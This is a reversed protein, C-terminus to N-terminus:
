RSHEFPVQVLKDDKLVYPWAVDSRSYNVRTVFTTNRMGLPELFHTTILDEWKEGGLVESIYTALGYMLNNYYYKVRLSDKAPLHLHQLHRSM